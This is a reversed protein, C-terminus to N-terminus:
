SCVAKLMKDMDYLERMMLFARLGDQLIPLPYSHTHFDAYEKGVRLITASDVDEQGTDLLLGRYAAVQLVVEPYIGNSTKLDFLVRKGNIRVLADYTGGYHHVESVLPTETSLVELKVQDRWEVFATLATRAKEQLEAPAAFVTLPRDHITDDIWAHAITGATGADDKTRDMDLGAKGQNYAWRILGGSDKYRSTITTVGPVRTGDALKYAPPRGGGSTAM